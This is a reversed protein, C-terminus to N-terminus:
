GSHEQSERRDQGEALQQHEGGPGSAAAFERFRVLPEGLDVERLVARQKLLFTLASGRSENEIISAATSHSQGFRRLLEFPPDDARRLRQANAREDRGVRGYVLM